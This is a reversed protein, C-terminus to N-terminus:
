SRDCFISADNTEANQSNLMVITESCSQEVFDIGSPMLPELMGGLFLAALLSPASSTPAKYIRGSRTQLSSNSISASVRLKSKRNNM